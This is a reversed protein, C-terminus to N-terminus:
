SCEKEQYSFLPTFNLSVINGNISYKQFYDGEGVIEKVIQHSIEHEGNLLYSYSPNLTKINSIFESKDDISVLYCSPYYYQSNKSNEVLNSLEKNISGILMIEKIDTTHPDLYAQSKRGKPGTVKILVGEPVRIQSNQLRSLEVVKEVLKKQKRPSNQATMRELGVIAPPPYKAITVGYTELTNDSYLVAYPNEGLIIYTDGNQQSHATTNAGIIFAFMLIFVNVARM